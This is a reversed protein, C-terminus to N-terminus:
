IVGDRHFRPRCLFQRFVKRPTGRVPSAPDIKPAAM